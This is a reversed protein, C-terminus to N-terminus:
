GLEGCRCGKKKPIGTLIIGESTEADSKAEADGEAEAVVLSALAATVVPSDLAVIVGVGEDLVAAETSAGGDEPWSGVVSSGARLDADARAKPMM